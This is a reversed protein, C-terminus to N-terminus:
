YAVRKADTGGGSADSAPPRAAALSTLLWILM